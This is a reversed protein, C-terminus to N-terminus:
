DDRLYVIFWKPEIQRFYVGPPLRNAKDLNQMILGEREYSGPVYEIGKIWGASIASLGGGAFIFRATGDPSITVILDPCIESLLRKYEQKRMENLREGLHSKSFYYDQPSDETVMQCLEEFAPRHDHFLTLLTQDKPSRLNLPDVMWFVFAGLACCVMIFGFALRLLVTKPNM